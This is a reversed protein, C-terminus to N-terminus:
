VGVVGLADHDAAAQRYSKGQLVELAAKRARSRLPAAPGDKLVAPPARIRKTALSAPANIRKRKLMAAMQGLLPSLFLPISPLNYLFLLM